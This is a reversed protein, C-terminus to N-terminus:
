GYIAMQGNFLDIVDCMSYVRTMNKPIIERNRNWTQNFLFVNEVYPSVKVCTSFRDDVFFKLKYKKITDLKGDSNDMIIDFQDHRLKGRLYKKLYGMCSEPRATIFFLRGHKLFRNVLISDPIINSNLTIEELHSRWLRNVELKNALHKPINFDFTKQPTIDFDFYKLFLKRFQPYSNIIVGDLDFAILKNYM